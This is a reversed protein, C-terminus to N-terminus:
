KGSDPAISDAWTWEVMRLEGAVGGLPRYYTLFEQAGGDRALERHVVM